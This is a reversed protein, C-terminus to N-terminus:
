FYSKSFLIMKLFDNFGKQQLIFFDNKWKLNETKLHFSRRENMKVKQQSISLLDNMKTKLHFFLENM